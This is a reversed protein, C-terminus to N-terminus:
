TSPRVDDVTSQRLVERFERALKAAELHAALKQQSALQVRADAVRSLEGLHIEELAELQSMSLQEIGLGLVNMPEIELAAAKPHRQQLLAQASALREVSAPTREQTATGANYQAYLPDPLPAGSKRSSSAVPEAQLVAPAMRELISQGPNARPEEPIAPSANGPKGRRWSPQVVQWPETGEYSSVANTAQEEPVPGIELMGEAERSSAPQHNEEVVDESAAAARKEGLNDHSSLIAETTGLPAGRRVAIKRKPQQSPSEDDRLLAAAAAEAAEGREAMAERLAVITPNSSRARLPVAREAEEIPLRGAANRRFPDAGARLLRAVTDGQGASAAIHLVQQGSPAHLVAEREEGSCQELHRLLLDLV